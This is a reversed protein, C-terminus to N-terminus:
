PQPNRWTSYRPWRFDDLALKVKRTTAAVDYKLGKTDASMVDIIAQQSDVIARLNKNDEQMLELQKTVDSMNERLEQKKHHHKKDKKAKGSGRGHPSPTAGKDNMEAVQEHVDSSRM